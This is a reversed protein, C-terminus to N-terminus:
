GIPPGYVFYLLVLGLIVRYIVFPTYTARRLWAMLMAIAALATVFALAAALVADFTLRTDGAEYLDLGALTGAAIITPISLLMSFRAGDSREMGLMRAATMTIGSRSTGPIIALAQALGIIVVDPLRIHEMRRTTMGVRDAFWLVIGFGLTTWAIVEINRLADGLYRSAALGAIVVPITGVIIYFALRTNDDRRGVLLGLGGVILSGVDSRFYLIVAALTGVHV